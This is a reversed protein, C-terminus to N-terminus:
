KAAPAPAAGEAAPAAAADAGEAETAAPAEEEEQKESTCSAVVSNQNPPFSVGPIEPLSEIHITNGVHLDSVDVEIFKPLDKPLCRVMIEHVVELTGNEALVGVAEGKVRVPIAVTMHVNPDVEYIDVHVVKQSVANRQFDKILSLVPEAGDISIEVLAASEGKARMMMRFEADNISIPRAAKKVGYIVGPLFGAARLRRAPGRGVGDRTKVNLKYEKM